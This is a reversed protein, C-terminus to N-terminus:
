FAISSASKTVSNSVSLTVKCTIIIAQKLNKELRAVGGLNDAVSAIERWAGLKQHIEMAQKYYNEAEDLDGNESSINGLNGLVAATTMEDDHNRLIELSELLYQTAKNHEGRSYEVVSLNSCARSTGLEDGIRKTIQYGKTLWAEAMEFKSQMTYVPGLSIMIRAEMKQNNDLAFKEMAATYNKIGVELEGALIAIDAIELHKEPSFEIGERDLHQQYFDIVAKAQAEREAKAHDNERADLEQRHSENLKALKEELIKNKALVEAHEEVPIGHTITVDGGAAIAHDGVAAITDNGSKIQINEDGAIKLTM